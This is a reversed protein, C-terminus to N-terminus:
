SIFRIEFIAGENNYRTLEGHIQKTMINVLRLGLSGKKLNTAEDIGCGTDTVSLLWAHQSNDTSKLSISIKGSSTQPFAYKMSNTVLENVIIALPLALKTNFIVNSIDIEFHIHEHTNKMIDRHFDLVKNLYDKMNIELSSDNQYLLEHLVALSQIRNQSQKLYEALKENESSNAQLILLSSIIQLNNNIRHHVEQLLVEKRRSDESMFEAIKKKNDYARKVFFLLILSIFIIIVFFFRQQRHLKNSAELQNVVMNNEYKILAEKKDFDYQMAAQTSKEITEKNMLSDKYDIYLRHCELASKYDGLAENVSTLHEYADRIHDAGGIELSLKLAKELYTKAEKYKKTATSVEGLGINTFILGEKDEIKENVKLSLHYMQTAEPYKKQRYYVVAINGTIMSINYQDDLQTFLDYAIFYHKLAQTYNGQRDFILGINNNALAIGHQDNLETKLKLATFNNKFAASDNGLTYYSNAINNTAMAIGPKFKIEEMIALATYFNKLAESYKGQQDYILGINNYSYAIGKKHNIQKYLNQAIIYHELAKTYNGLKWNLQGLENNANAIGKKWGITNGIKINSALKLSQNNFLLASDPLGVKRYHAGLSLLHKVKSTDEKDVQILKFLSDTYAQSFLCSFSIIFGLTFIYSRIKKM